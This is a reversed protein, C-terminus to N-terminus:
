FNTNPPSPLPPPTNQRAMCPVVTSLKLPVFLSPFFANVKGWLTQQTSKVGHLTTGGDDSNIQEGAKVLSRVACGLFRPKIEM